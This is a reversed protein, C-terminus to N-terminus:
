CINKRHMVGRQYTENTLCLRFLFNNWL